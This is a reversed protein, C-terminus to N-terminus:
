LPFKISLSRHCCKTVLAASSKGEDAKLRKRKKEEREAHMRVDKKVNLGQKRTKGREKWLM